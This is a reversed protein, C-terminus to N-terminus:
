QNFPNNESDYAKQWRHLPTRHLRSQHVMDGLVVM